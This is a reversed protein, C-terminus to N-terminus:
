LLLSAINPITTRLPILLAYFHTVVKEGFITSAHQTYFVPLKRHSGSSHQYDSEMIIGLLDEKPWLHRIWIKPAWNLDSSSPNGSRSIVNERIQSLRWQDIWTFACAIFCAIWTTALALASRAAPVPSHGRLSDKKEMYMFIEIHNRVHRSMKWTRWANCSFGSLQPSNGIIIIM